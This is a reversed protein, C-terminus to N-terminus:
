RYWDHDHHYHSGHDSYGPDGWQVVRLPAQLQFTLRAGAPVRIQDGHYEVQGGTAGAIAGIINGVVGGGNQYQQTHFEPGSADMVYRRGNVTLSELDLVFEHDGVQRVILECNAGQPVAVNGDRSFVDRAIFGPYIRGRDWQAVVIPNDARVQIQTGPPIVNPYRGGAMAPLAVGAAMLLSIALSKM